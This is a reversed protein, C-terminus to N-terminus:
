SLNRMYVRCFVPCVSLGLCELALHLKQSSAFFSSLSSEVLSSAFQLIPTSLGSYINELYRAEVNNFTVVILFSSKQRVSCDFWCFILYLYVLILCQWFCILNELKYIKFIRIALYCKKRNIVVM